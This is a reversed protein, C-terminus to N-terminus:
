KVYIAAIAIYIGFAVVIAEEIAFFIFLLSVRGVKILKIRMIELDRFIKIDMFWEFIAWGALFFCFVIAAEAGRMFMYVFPFVFAIPLYIKCFFSFLGPEYDDLAFIGYIRKVLYFVFILASLNYPAEKILMNKYVLDIETFSRYIYRLCIAYFIFNCIGNFILFYNNMRVYTRKENTAEYYSYENYTSQSQYNNSYTNTNNQKTSNTNGSSSYGNAHSSSSTNNSYSYSSGSSTNTNTEKENSTESFEKAGPGMLGLDYAKSLVDFAANIEASKRTYEEVNGDPCSDPHWKVLLKKHVKKVYTFEVHVDTIGFVDMAKKIEDVSVM